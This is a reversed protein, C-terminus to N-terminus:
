LGFEEARRVLDMRSSIGLKAYTNAVHQEVTREGIHLTEGIERASLGRVVLGAVEVERRTLADPGWAPRDRPSPRTGTVFEQIEALVPQADGIWPWHDVGPLEILQAGPLHRAVYRSHEISLWPDDIRHLLLTPVAVDAFAARLDTAACLSFLERTQAPSAAARAHRAFWSRYREDNALTPNMTGAGEGTAWQHDVAALVDAFFGESWGAPYDDSHLLRGHAGWLVLSRTRGPEALAFSVSVAAGVAVGFLVAREVGVADMVARVDDVAADMTPTGSVPDSLGTGRKDFWILRSFSSLGRLFRALFPEEWAIDLHSAFGPVFVLDPGSDGVRQYAIHVDGSRAYSVEPGV